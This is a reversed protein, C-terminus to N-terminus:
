GATRLVANWRRPRVPEKTGADGGSSLQRRDAVRDKPHRDSVRGRTGTGRRFAASDLSLIAIIVISVALMFDV